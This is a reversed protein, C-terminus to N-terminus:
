RLALTCDSRNAPLKQVVLLLRTRALSLHCVKSFDQFCVCYKIFVGYKIETDARVRPLNRQVCQQLNGSRVLFFCGGGGGCGPGRGLYRLLNKSAASTHGCRFNRMQVKVKADLIRSRAQLAVIKQCLFSRHFLHISAIGFNLFLPKEDAFSLFDLFWNVPIYTCYMIIILLRLLDLQVYM